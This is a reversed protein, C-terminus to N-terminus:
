AKLVLEGKSQIPYLDRFIAYISVVYYIRCKQLNIITIFQLMGM